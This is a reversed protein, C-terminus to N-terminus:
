YMFNVKEKVACYENYRNATDTVSMKGCSTDTAQQM